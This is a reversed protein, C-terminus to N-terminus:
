IMRRRKKGGKAEADPVPFFEAQLTYSFWNFDEVGVRDILSIYVELYCTFGVDGNVGETIIRVLEVEVTHTDFVKTKGEKLHKLILARMPKSPDNGEIFPHKLKLTGYLCPAKVGYDENHVGKTVTIEVPNGEADLQPLSITIKGDDRIKSKLDARSLEKMMFTLDGAAKAAFGNADLTKEMPVVPFDSFTRGSLLLFRANEQSTM